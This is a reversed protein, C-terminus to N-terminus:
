KYISLAIHIPLLLVGSVQGCWYVWGFDLTPCCSLDQSTGGVWGRCCRQLWEEGAVGCPVLVDRGAARPWAALGASGPAIEATAAVFGVDMELGPLQVFELQHQEGRPM